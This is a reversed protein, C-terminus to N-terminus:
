VKSKGYEELARRIDKYYEDIRPDNGLLPPPQLSRRALETIYDLKEILSKEPNKKPSEGM